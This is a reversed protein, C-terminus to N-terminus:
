DLCDLRIELKGSKFCFEITNETFPYEGLLVITEVIIRDAWRSSVQIQIGSLKENNMLLSEVNPMCM